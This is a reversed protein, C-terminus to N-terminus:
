ETTLVDAMKIRPCLFSHRQRFQGRGPILDELYKDNDQFCQPTDTRTILSGGSWSSFSFWVKSRSFRSKRYMKDYNTSRTKSQHQTQNPKHRFDLIPPVQPPVHSFNFTPKFDFIPPVQPTAHSFNFLQSSTSFRHYNLRYMALTSLQSSTSFQHHMTFTLLQSSTSFRHYNPRYMALTSLQSLTSFQHHMALASLQSLTLFQHHM